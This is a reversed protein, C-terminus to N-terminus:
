CCHLLIENRGGGWERWSLGATSFLPAVDAFNHQCGDSTVDNGTVVKSHESQQQRLRVRELDPAAREEREKELREENGSGSGRGDVRRASGGNEVTRRSNASRESSRDVVREYQQQQRRGSTSFISLSRRSLVATLVRDRQQQTQPRTTTGPASTFPGPPSSTKSATTITALCPGASARRPLLRGRNHQRQGAYRCVLVLCALNAFVFLVRDAHSYMGLDAEYNANARLM